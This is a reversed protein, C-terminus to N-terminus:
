PAPPRDSTSQGDGQAARPLRVAVGLWLGSVLLAAPGLPLALMALVTPTWAGLLDGARYVFTDIFPKAKYKADQPLPIYLVERAPRDVAYHLGRRLVMVVALVPYVPWRWLASFGLITLVPMISLVGALRVGTLLRSTALVQTCLTLANVWFDIGAFAATRAAADPFAKEVIQGQRVYLMTSTVTFLLMYAAILQLTRSRGILALGAFASPGPEGRDHGAGAKMGRRLVGMLCLAGVELCILSLLFLLSPDVRRSLLGTLGAGAMAGSTGGLSILGFLRAGQERSFADAMVAWFLSVVFLNFVSLWIYFGYGLAAGGRAPGPWYRFLVFFVLLNAAFFHYALPLFRRRPLRSVLAAFLPNCLLMALLTGTMVLPLKDAGRSIGMAERLPRLLYYSLLLFFFACAGLALAGGEGPLLLFIHQL